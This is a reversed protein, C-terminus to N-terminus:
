FAKKREWSILKKFNGERRRKKKQWSNSSFTVSSLDQLKYCWNALCSNLCMTQYRPFSVVDSLLVQDM